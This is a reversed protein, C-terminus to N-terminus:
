FTLQARLATLHKRLTNEVESKGGISNDYFIMRFGSIDFPPRELRRDSLLITPKRIGHSFGVEYYVNANNPTIDAIVLSAERISKAIDNIILENTYINDGRIVEYGFEACIPKIVERYLQNYEETFQMVVFVQPKAASVVINRVQTKGYGRMVVELPARTIQAQVTAARIGDISLEVISGQVTIRLSFWRGVPPPAEASVLDQLVINHAQNNSDRQAIGFAHGLVNIGAFTTIKDTVGLRFQVKSAPHDIWVDCSIEGDEFFLDSRLSVAPRDDKKGNSELTNARPTNKRPATPSPGTLCIMNDELGAIGSIALWKPKLKQM